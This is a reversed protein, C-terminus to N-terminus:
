KPTEGFEFRASRAARYAAEVEPYAHTTPISVSEVFWSAPNYDDHPMKRACFFTSVEDYQSIFRVGSRPQFYAWHLSLGKAHRAIPHLTLGFRPEPIDGLLLLGPVKWSNFKGNDFGPLPCGYDLFHDLDCAEKRLAETTGKVEVWTGTGPLYFDPLYRVTKEVEGRMYWGSKEYGEVEYQWKVGLTDFFVAWRAELRSRFRYGKYQTEIAKISM